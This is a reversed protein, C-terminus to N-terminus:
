AGQVAVATIPFRNFGMGALDQVWAACSQAPDAIGAEVDAGNAAFLFDGTDLNGPFAASTSGLGASVAPAADCGGELAHQCQVCCAGVHGVGRCDPRLFSRLNM